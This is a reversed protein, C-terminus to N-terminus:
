TKLDRQWKLIAKGASNYITVWYIRFTIVYEENSMQCVSLLDHNTMDTFLHAASAAESLELIDLSATQSSDM